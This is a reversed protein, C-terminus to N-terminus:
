EELSQEARKYLDTAQISAAAQSFEGRDTKRRMVSEALAKRLERVCQAMVSPNAGGMCADRIKRFLPPLRSVDQPLVGDKDLMVAEASLGALRTGHKFICEYCRKNEVALHEELLVCDELMQELNYWPDTVPDITM